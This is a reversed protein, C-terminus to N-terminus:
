NKKLFGVTSQMIRTQMKKQDGKENETKLDDLNARCFHCGLTNLHMDVFNEWGTDLTDLM